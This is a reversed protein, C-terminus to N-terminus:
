IFSVAREIWGGLFRVQSPDSRVIRVYYRLRQIALEVSAPRAQQGEAVALMVRARGVGSNVAIDVVQPKLVPDVGDFPRVYEHQYIARATELPMTRVDEVTADRGIWLSLTAQTIGYNTANGRDASDNVFGGERKLIGDIIQSDTQPTM